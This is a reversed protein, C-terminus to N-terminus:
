HSRPATRTGMRPTGIHSKLKVPFGGYMPVLPIRYDEYVKSMWGLGSQLNVVVERINETFVPIIPVGAEIAVKAFGMRNGWMVDYNPTGLQAERAGGPALGMLNGRKLWNVCFQKKGSHFAFGKFIFEFGPLSCLFRDIVSSVVRNNKALIHMNLLLYDIPVAGHYYVILAGGRKPINDFGEIEFGHMLRGYAIFFTSVDKRATSFAHHYSVGTLLSHMFPKIILYCNIALALCLYFLPFAITGLCLYLEGLDTLATVYALTM